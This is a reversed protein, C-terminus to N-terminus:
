SLFTTMQQALRPMWLDRPIDLMLTGNSDADLYVTLSSFADDAEISSISGGSIDYDFNAKDLSLALASYESIPYLIMGFLLVLAIYRAYVYKQYVGSRIYNAM